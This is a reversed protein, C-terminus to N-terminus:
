LTSRFLNCVPTCSKGLLLLSFKFDTVACHQFFLSTSEIFIM